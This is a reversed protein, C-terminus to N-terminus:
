QCRFEFTFHNLSKNKVNSVQSVVEIVFAFYAAVFFVIQIEFKHDEMWFMESFRLLNRWSYDIGNGTLVQTDFLEHRFYKCNRLEVSAQSENWRLGASYNWQYFFFEHFLQLNLEFFFKIKKWDSHHDFVFFM